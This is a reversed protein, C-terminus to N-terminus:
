HMLPENWSGLWKSAIHERYSQLVEDLSITATITDGYMLYIRNSEVVIPWKRGKNDVGVMDGWFLSWILSRESYHADPVVQGEHNSM